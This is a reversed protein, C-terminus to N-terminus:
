ASCHHSAILPICTRTPCSWLGPCSCSGKKFVLGGRIAKVAGIGRVSILEEEGGSGAWM